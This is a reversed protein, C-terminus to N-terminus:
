GNGHVLVPSSSHCPLTVIFESGKGQTSKVVINGNLRQVAKKVIALGIGTGTNTDIAEGREFINFISEQFREPIGVGNDKFHIQCTSGEQKVFVDVKASTGKPVFKVANGLLNSVIQILLTRNGVVTPLPREFNIQAKSKKLETELMALSEDLVEHLAVVEEPAPAMSMQSFKLIDNILGEMSRAAKYIKDLYLEKEKESLDNADTRLLQSFSSISRLPARLDHSLTHAFAELEETKRRLLDDEKKKETLDRTVKAFGSLNGRKDWLATIVVSAWFRSGDKRLRWGEEEYRGDRIAIAIEKAPKEAKLDEQTYFTSFHRGIIEESSYGKIRRAGQNWSAVNGKADLIFIAYDKVQEVLLRFREESDLLRQFSEEQLKKQTLDRTVKAFGSIKGGSRLPTIIVNAWFRSGDKKVRWGEDEYRGMERAMKLEFDPKEAELDAQSYFTSFHKGIIEAAEYGKIRRAGENWSLIKGTPDLMFIAYDKVQEVLLRFIEPSDPTIPASDMDNRKPLDVKKSAVTFRSFRALAQQKDEDGKFFQSEIARLLDILDQFSGPKVVYSHCGLEHARKVDNDHDSSSFVIVPFTRTAPPQKNLYELVEFGSVKPMKLDLLLLHPLPYKERDAFEGEGSLYRIVEHGDNVSALAFKVGAKIFARNLLVHANEDDDASLVLHTQSPNETRM